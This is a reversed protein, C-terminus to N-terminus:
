TVGICVCVLEGCETVCVHIFIGVQWLQNKSVRVSRLSLLRQAAVLKFVCLGLSVATRMGRM